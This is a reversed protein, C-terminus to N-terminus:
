GTELQPSNSGSFTCLDQILTNMFTMQRQASCLTEIYQKRVDDLPELLASLCLALSLRHLKCEIYHIAEMPQGEGALARHCLDNLDQTLTALNTHTEQEANEFNDKDEHHYDSLIDTNQGHHATDRDLLQGAGRCHTAM